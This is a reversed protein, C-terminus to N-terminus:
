LERRAALAIAGALAAGTAVVTTAIAPLYDAPRATDVLGTLAGLLTTPLWRGLSGFSGVIALGLLVALSIGATALRSASIPRCTEAASRRM